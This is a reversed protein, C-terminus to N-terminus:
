NKRQFDEITEYSIKLINVVLLMLIDAETSIRELFHTNTDVDDKNRFSIKIFDEYLDEM